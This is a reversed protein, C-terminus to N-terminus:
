KQRKNYKELTNVVAEELTIDYRSGITALTEFMSNVDLDEYSEGSDIRKDAKRFKKNELTFTSIVGLMLEENSQPSQRANVQQSFGQILNKEFYGLLTFVVDGLEDRIALKNGRPIEKALEGLEELVQLFRKEIPWIGWFREFFTFVEKQLDALSKNLELDKINEPLEGKFKYKRLFLILFAELKAKTTFTKEKNIDDITYKVYYLKSQINFGIKILKETYGESKHILLDVLIIASSSDNRKVRKLQDKLVQYKYIKFVKKM